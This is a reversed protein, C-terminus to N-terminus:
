HQIQRATVAFLERLWLHGADTDNMPHWWMAEVLPAAEFPCPLVRVTGAAAMREGLQRQILAIRGTGAVLAPLLAYSECVTRVNLEVGHMRLEQAATTYQTGRHYTLVWPLESLQQLTLENGITTNDASVLCLWEDEYLDRHPLDTVFGHPLILLDAIRLTEAAGDVDNRTTPRIYLRVRPAEDDLRRSLEPGLVGLAYDSMLVTFERDSTAPDFDPSTDFVRNTAPLAVTARALIQEALPTLLHTNGSRVLLDDQFHRRLRALSQSVAPQSLGLREAARTVNRETLLAFLAPLLNLDIDKAVPVGEM